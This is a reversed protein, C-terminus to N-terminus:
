SIVSGVELYTSSTGAYLQFNQQDQIDDITNIISILTCATQRILQRQLVSASFEM